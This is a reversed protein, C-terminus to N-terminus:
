LFRFLGQLAQYLVAGIARMFPALDGTAIAASVADAGSVPDTILLWITAGAITAAVIGIVAVLTVSWRGVSM